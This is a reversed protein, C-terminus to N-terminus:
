YAIYHIIKTISSFINWFFLGFILKYLRTKETFQPINTNFQSFMKIAYIYYLEFFSANFYHLNLSILGATM